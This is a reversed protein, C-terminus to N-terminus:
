DNGSVGSTNNHALKAVELRKASPDVHDFQLVIPDTEGCDVCSHDRLYAMIRVRTEGRAAKDRKRAKATYYATNRQYHERCYRRSCERCYVQRRGTRRDKINFETLERAQDCGPCVRHEM